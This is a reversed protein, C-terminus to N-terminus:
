PFMSLHALALPFSILAILAPLSPPPAQTNMKSRSPLSSYIAKPPDIKPAPIHSHMCAYTSHNQKQHRAASKSLPFNAYMPTKSGLM